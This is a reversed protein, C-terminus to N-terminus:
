HDYGVPKQFLKVYTCYLILYFLIIYLIWDMSLSTDLEKGMM